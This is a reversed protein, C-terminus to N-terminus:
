AGHPPHRLTRWVCFSVASTKELNWRGLLLGLENNKGLIFHLIAIYFDKLHFFYITLIANPLTLKKKSLVVGKSQQEV